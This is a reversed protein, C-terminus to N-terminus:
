ARRSSKACSCGTRFMSHKCAIYFGISAEPKLALAWTRSAYLTRMARGFPWASVSRRRFNDFDANLRLLQDKATSTTNELLAARSEAAAAAEQLRTMEADLEALAAEQLFHCQYMTKKGKCGAFRDQFLWGCVGGVLTTKDPEEAELAARAKQIPTM